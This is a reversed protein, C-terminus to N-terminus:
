RCANKRHQDIGREKLIQKMGKPIGHRDVLKQPKGAWETDRMHPQAGGPKVNMRKANLADEAYAKHCSSQDFLWVVTNKDSRYKFEAIKAAREVNAMFKDGTWYGEKDAGYELLTRATKPFDPNAATALAHEEDTLRLFGSHQDIFDSVMIGYGKTKPQLVPTDDSAWMWVQGENISFISEDHYICVLTKRFEADPPPTAAREDSCPPSPKHTDRLDKMKKLFEERHKVVDEREHGDVYAGKRHHQPRFGLQHLWRTATRVSISRPLQPSLTHSPLLENNVWQCFSKVTLNAAGKQYAHERVYMAADLRLNEDNLLCHRQHKGQRSEKFKGGNDYFDKHYTRVTKENFGTISAAEQAADTVNMAQRTRFSQFLLVSLMKRQMAPLSIMWDDFVGQAKEDDFETSEDSDNESGSNRAGDESESEESSGRAERDSERGPVRAEIASVETQQDGSIGSSTPRQDDSHGSTERSSVSQEELLRPQKAAGAQAARAEYMAKRKWKGTGAGKSAM